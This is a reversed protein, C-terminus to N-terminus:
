YWGSSESHGWAGCPTGYRDAIYDLGWKIQTVPNTRYDSGASAMKGAPLSQPIGYAGSSPNTARYNWGSERNWLSVLCSFQGAGWGRDAAMIRAIAQPDRQASRAAKQRLQKRRREAAAEARAKAEAKAKAEAEARTQAAARDIQVQHEAEAARLELQRTAVEARPASDAALAASALSGGGAGAVVDASTMAAASDAGLDNALLVTGSVASLLTVVSLTRLASPVV